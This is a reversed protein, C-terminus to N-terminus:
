KMRMKNLALDTKHIMIYIIEHYQTEVFKWSASMSVIILSLLPMEFTVHFSEGILGEVMTTM